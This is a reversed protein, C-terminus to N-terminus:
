RVRGDDVDAICWLILFWARRCRWRKWWRGHIQIKWLINIEV